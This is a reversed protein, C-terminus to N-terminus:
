KQPEDKKAAAAVRNAAEGDVAEKCGRLGTVAYGLLPSLEAGQMTEILAGVKSSVDAIQEDTLKAM